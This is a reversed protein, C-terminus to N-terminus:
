EALFADIGNAIGTVIKAQYEETAMLRDEEPNSMYGMEVITVPVRAWNIGSMTDTEWVKERRCGTEAVLADLVETALRKSEGALEGNYPNDPTQCITMAGNVSADESGDAHIRVFADADANNAMEARQSNSIDVDNSTRIMVVQYGRETLEEQLQLAVMLNLEYENLGSVVGATGSSVKAKTEAAGPGIPERDSNARAQHGADIAIVKGTPEPEEPEAEPEPEESAAIDSAEPKQEEAPPASQDPLAEYAAKGQVSVSEAAMVSGEHAAASVSAEVGEETLDGVTGCGGVTGILLTVMLLLASIKSLHTKM